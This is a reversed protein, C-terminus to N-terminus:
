SLPPPPPLLPQPLLLLLPADGPSPGERGGPSPGLAGRPLEGAGRPRGGPRSASRLPPSPRNGALSPPAASSGAAPLSGWCPLTRRSEREAPRRRPPDTDERPRRLRRSPWSRAARGKGFGRLRRGPLCSVGPVGLRLTESRPPGSVEGPSPGPFPSVRPPLPPQLPARPARPLGLTSPWTAPALM